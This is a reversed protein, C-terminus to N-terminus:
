RYPNRYPNSPSPPAAGGTAGRPTITPTSQLQKIYDDTTLLAGSQQYAQYFRNVFGGLARKVLTKRTRAADGAEKTALGISADEITGEIEKLESKLMDLQVGLHKTAADPTNVGAQLGANLPITRLGQEVAFIRKARKGQDWPKRGVTIDAEEEMGALRESLTRGAMAKDKHYKNFTPSETPQLKPDGIYQLRGQTTNFKYPHGQDSYMESVDWQDAVKTRGFMAAQARNEEAGSIALDAQAKHLAIEGQTKQIGLAGLQPMMQEQMAQLRDQRRQQPIAMLGRAVNSINGGITPSPEDMNALAITANYLAGGVRPHRQMWNGAVKGHAQVMGPMLPNPSTQGGIDTGTTDWDDFYGM